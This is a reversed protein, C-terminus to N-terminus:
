QMKGYKKPFSHFVTFRAGHSKFRSLFEFYEERSDFANEPYKSTKVERFGTEPNEWIYNLADLMPERHKETAKIINKM